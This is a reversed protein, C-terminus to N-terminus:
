DWRSSERTMRLKHSVPTRLLLVANTVLAVEKTEGRGGGREWEEGKIEKEMNERRGNEEM